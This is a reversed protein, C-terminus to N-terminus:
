VLRQAMMLDYESRSGEVLEATQQEVVATQQEVAKTTGSQVATSEQIAQIVRDIDAKTVPSPNTALTDIQKYVAAFINNYDQSSAYFSRAESLYADAYRTIGSIAGADGGQAKMLQETYQSQAEFIRQSATLPSKDSLLLGDLWARLTNRTSDLGTQLGSQLIANRRAEYDSQLLLMDLGYRRFVEQQQRYQDELDLLQKGFGPHAAELKQYALLRKTISQIQAEAQLATEKLFVGRAGLEYKGFSSEFDIDARAKNAIVTLQSIQATLLTVFGTNSLSELTNMAGALEAAAQDQVVYYSIFQAAATALADVAVTANNSTQVLSQATGNLTTFAPVLDMLANFMSRGADTSLDLSEVLKRFDAHTAPIAVGLDAFGATLAQQAFETNKAAREADTFLSQFYNNTKATLQDIGGAMEILKERAKTSALGVAGFAQESTKGLVSAVYNTTTFVATLRQFTQVTTEAGRGADILDQFSLTQGFTAMVSNTNKLQDNIGILGLALASVEELTGKASGILKGMAADIETFAPVLAAALMEGMAANIAPQLDKEERGLDRNLINLVEVGGVSAIASLRNPATGKPDTDYGLGFTADTLKSGVREIMSQYVGNVSEVLPKINADAQNPTYLREVNPLGDVIGKADFQAMFSGGVKPGGGKGGFMSYLAVAGLAIWGWVPISALGATISGTITTGAAGAYAASGATAAMGSMGFGATQAALMAAQSGVAASGGIISAYTGTAAAASGLGLATAGYNFLGGLSALSGLGGIGSAQAAQAAVSAGTGTIAATINFIWKKVTMQYLLDLLTAKLTDRLKTFANKGGEFINVFVDHATKDVSEWIEKFRKTEEDYASKQEIARSIRKSFDEWAESTKEIGKQELDFLAIAKERETNSLTMVSVEFELKEVYERTTKFLNEKKDIQEQDLKIAEAAEQNVLKAADAMLRSQEKGYEYQFILAEVLKRYREPDKSAFEKNLMALEQWFKQGVGGKNNELRDVLSQLKKAYDDVMKAGSSFKALDVPSGRQERKGYLSALAKDYEQASIEWSFFLEDLKDFDSKIAARTAASLGFAKRLADQAPTKGLGALYDAHVKKFENASKTFSSLEAAIAERNTFISTIGGSALTGAKAVAAAQTALSSLAESIFRILNILRNGHDITSAFALAVNEAWVTIANSGSLKKSEMATDVFAQAVDNLVPLLGSGLFMALGQGSSKLRDLNDNFKDADEAFQSSVIIGLREAEDALEQIGKKGENLLPIMDVGSKGFLKVALESKAAGNEMVSFKDALELLVADTAKLGGSANKVEIGLGKFVAAAEKGGTSAEFMNSALKKFAIQLSETSVESLKAAYQLGSLAETTTGAKQAFKGLADTADFSSRILAAFAGVSLAVGLSGLVGRLGSAASSVSTMNSQLSAFAGKTEDTAKILIRAVDVAM